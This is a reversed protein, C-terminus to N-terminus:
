CEEVTFFEETTTLITIPVGEASAPRDLEVFFEGTSEYMGIITGTLTPM